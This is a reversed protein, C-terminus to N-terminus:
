FLGRGGGGSGGELSAINQVVMKKIKNQIKMM